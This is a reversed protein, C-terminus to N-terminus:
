ATRNPRDSRLGGKREEMQKKQLGEEKPAQKMPIVPSTLDKMRAELECFEKQMDLLEAHAQIMERELEAIQRTKRALQRQRGLFGTLVSGCVILLLIFINITLDFTIM